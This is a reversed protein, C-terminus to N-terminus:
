IYLVYKTTQQSSKTEVTVQSEQVASRCGQELLNTKKGNKCGNRNPKPM